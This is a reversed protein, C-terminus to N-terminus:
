GRKIVKTEIEFCVHASDSENAVRSFGLSEYLRYADPNHTRLRLLRFRSKAHDMIQQVLLKAFGKNRYAELVYVHRVRGVSPDSLYPDLNLGGIGVLTGESTYLGFLIENQLQFRNKGSGWEDKMRVIFDHGQQQSEAILEGFGSPLEKLQRIQIKLDRTM